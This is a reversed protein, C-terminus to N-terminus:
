LYPLYVMLQRIIDKPLFLKGTGLRPIHHPSLLVELAYRGFLFELVANRRDVSGLACHRTNTLVRIPECYKVILMFSRKFRQKSDYTYSPYYIRQLYRTALGSFSLSPQIPAFPDYGNKLFCEITEEPTDQNIPGNLDFNRQNIKLKLMSIVYQVIDWPVDLIIMGIYHLCTNGYKDVHNLKHTIKMLYRVDDWRRKDFASFINFLRRTKKNENNPDM